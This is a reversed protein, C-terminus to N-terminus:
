ETGRRGVEVALPGVWCCYKGLSHMGGFNKLEVLKKECVRM